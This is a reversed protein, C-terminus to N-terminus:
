AVPPLPTLMAEPAKVRSAVSEKVQVPVFMKLEMVREVVVAAVEVASKEESKVPLSNLIPPVAVEVMLEEPSRKTIPEVVRWRTVKVLAV